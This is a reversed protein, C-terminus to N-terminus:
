FRGLSYYRTSRRSGRPLRGKIGELAKKLEVFQRSIPKGITREIFRRKTDENQISNTYAEILLLLAKVSACGLTITSSLLCNVNYTRLIEQIYTLIVPDVQPRQEKLKDLYGSPDHPSEIVKQGYETVRLWPWTENSANIGITLIGEVIM